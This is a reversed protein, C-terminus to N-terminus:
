ALKFVKDMIWYGIAPMYQVLYLALLVPQLSFFLVFIVRVVWNHRIYFLHLIQNRNKLFPFSLCIYYFKYTIRLSEEM